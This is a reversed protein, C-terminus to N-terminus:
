LSIFHFTSQKIMEANAMQPNDMHNNHHILQWIRGSGFVNELLPALFSNCISKYSFIVALSKKLIM